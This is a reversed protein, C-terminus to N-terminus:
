VCGGPGHTAPRTAEPGMAVRKAAWQRGVVAEVTDFLLDIDAESRRNFGPLVQEALEYLKLGSTPMTGSALSDALAKFLVTTRDRLAARADDLIPADGPRPRPPFPADAPQKLINITRWYEDIGANAPFDRLTITEGTDADSSRIFVRNDADNMSIYLIYDVDDIREAATVITDVGMVRQDSGIVPLPPRTPPNVVQAQDVPAFEPHMKDDHVVHWEVGARTPVMQVPESIDIGNRSIHRVHNQDEWIDLGDSNKGIVTRTKAPAPPRAAPPEAPPKPPRVPTVLVGGADPMDPRNARALAESRIEAIRDTVKKIEAKWGQWHLAKTTSRWTM